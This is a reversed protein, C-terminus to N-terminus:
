SFNGIKETCPVMKRYKQVVEGTKDMSWTVAVLFGYKNFDLLPEAKENNFGFLIPFDKLYIKKPNYQM